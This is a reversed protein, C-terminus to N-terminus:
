DRLAESRAVAPAAREALLGLVSANWGAPGTARAREADPFHAALAADVSGDPRPILIPREVRALMPVDSASDGIGVTRCRKGDAALLGLLLGVARGKDTPGTLHHFRGGRTIRLGRRRAAENVREVDAADVLFPEDWERRRALRVAAASLGTLQEIERPRMAVLGRLRAGTEAAIEGLASVLASRPLGLRLIRYGRASRSGAVRQSLLGAPILLAGGNEVILPCRVGLAVSLRVLEARTKSSAIALLVGQRALADLAPRAPEFSYSREDLLSGDLDTVLFLPDSARFDNM